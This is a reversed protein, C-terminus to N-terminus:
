TQAKLPKEEVNRVRNIFSNLWENIAVDAAIEGSRIRNLTEKLISGSEKPAGRGLIKEGHKEDLDLLYFDHLASLRGRLNIASLRAFHEEGLVVIVATQETVRMLFSNGNHISDGEQMESIPFKLYYEICKEPVEGRIGILSKEVSIIAIGKSNWKGKNRDVDDMLKEILQERKM